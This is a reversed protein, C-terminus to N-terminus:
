LAPPRRFNLIEEAAQAIGLLQVEQYWGATIQLGVPMGEEATGCPLTVAPLGTLNHPATNIPEIAAELSGFAPERRPAVWPVTLSVIVDFRGLLQHWADKIRQRAAHASLYFVGPGFLGLFLQIRTGEAYDPARTRLWQFHVRTAEPVVIHQLVTPAADLGPLDVYDLLVGASHLASLATQWVREVGPTIGAYAGTGLIGIRLGKLDCPAHPVTDERHLISALLIGVDESSRGMLGLHDSTQSLPFVGATDLLNYTPKLGVLGCYAAPIRVSGGTDTGIAGFADGAAVAAACGGSSGGATRTVNWPNNTQGFKPHVAGYAFELLNAKGLIIAGAQRLASAVLADGRAKRKPMIISGCTTTFGALDINDKLVIPVGDILSRPRGQLLRTESEKAEAIAKGDLITIWANLASEHQHIAELLSKTVTVPSLHQARYYSAVEAISLSGAHSPAIAASGRLHRIGNVQETALSPAPLPSDPVRSPGEPVFLTRSEARPVLHRGGQLFSALSPRLKRADPRTLPVGLLRAYHVISEVSPADGGAAHSSPM